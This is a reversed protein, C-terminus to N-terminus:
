WARSASCALRTSASSAMMPSLSASDPSNTESASSSSASPTVGTRHANWDVGLDPGCRVEQGAQTGSPSEHDLLISIRRRPTKLLQLSFQYLRPTEQGERGGTTSRGSEENGLGAPALELRLLGDLKCARDPHRVKSLKHQSAVDHEIGVGLAIHQQQGQTVFPLKPVLQKSSHRQRPKGTLGCTNLFDAPM